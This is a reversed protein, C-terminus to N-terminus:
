NKKKIKQLNKNLKSLDNKEMIDKEIDFLLERNSAPFYIYKYNKYRIASHPENMGVRNGIHFIFYLGM